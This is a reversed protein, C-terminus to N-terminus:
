MNHCFSEKNQKRGDDQQRGGQAGLHRALPVTLGMDAGGIIVLGGTKRGLIHALHDIGGRDARVPEGTGISEPVAPLGGLPGAPVQDIRDAAGPLFQDVIRTQRPFQRLDDAVGEILTVQGDLLETQLIVFAESELHCTRLVLHIRGPFLLPFGDEIELIVNGGPLQLLHRLLGKAVRTPRRNGRVSGHADIGLPAIEPPHIGGRQALRHLIGFVGGDHFM